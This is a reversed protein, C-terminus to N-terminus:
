VWFSCWERGKKRVVEKKDCANIVLHICQICSEHDNLDCDYYYVECSNVDFIGQTLGVNIFFIKKIFNLDIEKLKEQIYMFSKHDKYICLLISSSIVFNKLITQFRKDGSTDWFCLKVNKYKYVAYDVGITPIYSYNYKRKLLNNIFRTKGVGQKGIITSKIIM